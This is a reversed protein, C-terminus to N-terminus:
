QLQPWQPIAKLHELTMIFISILSKVRVIHSALAVPKTWPKRKAILRKEAWSVEKKNKKSGHDVKQQTVCESAVGDRPTRDASSPSWYSSTKPRENTPPMEQFDLPINKHMTYFAPFPHSTIRYYIQINSQKYTLSGLSQGGLLAASNLLSGHTARLSDAGFCFPCSRETVTSQHLAPKLKSKKSFSVLINVRSFALRILSFESDRVPSGFPAPCIENRIGYPPSRRTSFPRM